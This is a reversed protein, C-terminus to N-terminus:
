KHTENLVKRAKDLEDQTNVGLIETYNKTTYSGVSHGANTINKITDTLYYENSNNKSEIKKLAEKLYKGKFFYIGSNIEKIDKQNDNADKEEVIGIINKENDRIIRGYSMPNDLITTLITAANNDKTHIEKINNITESTILPTDGCLVVIDDTDEIYKEVQMVAHGTGLQEKQEVFIVDMKIAERVNKSDNSVVVFIKDTDCMKVSDLVYQVLTKDNIRHLVKPLISNMRTSKGAALIIAKFM